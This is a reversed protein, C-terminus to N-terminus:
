INGGDIPFISPTAFTVLDSEMFLAFPTIEEPNGLRGIAPHHRMFDERKKFFAEKNKTNVESEEDLHGGKSYVVSHMLTCIVVGEKAFSRGIGKVYANM